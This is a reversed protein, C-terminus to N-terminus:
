ERDKYARGKHPLFHEFYLFPHSLIMRLKLFHFFQNYHYGYPTFIFNNIVNCLLVNPSCSENKELMLYGKSINNM